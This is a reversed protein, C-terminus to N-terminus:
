PLPPAPLRQFRNLDKLRQHRDPIKFQHNININWSVRAAETSSRNLNHSRRFICRYSEVAPLITLVPHHVRQFRTRIKFKIPQVRTWRGITLVFISNKRRNLDAISVSVNESKPLRCKVILWWCTERFSCQNFSYFFRPITVDTLVVNIM